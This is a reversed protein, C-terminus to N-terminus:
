PKVLGGLYHAQVHAVLIKGDGDRAVGNILGARDILGNMHGPAAVGVLVEGAAALKFKGADPNGAVVASLQVGSDWNAVTGPVFWPTFFTVDDSLPIGAIPGGSSPGDNDFDNQLIIYPTRGATLGAVWEERNEETNYVLCACMGSRITQDAKKPAIGYAHKTSMPEFGNTFEVNPKEALTSGFAFPLAGTQQPAM